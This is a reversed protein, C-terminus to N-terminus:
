DKKQLKENKYDINKSIRTSEADSIRSDSLEKNSSKSKQFISDIRNQKQNNRGSTLLPMARKVPDLNIKNVLNLTEQSSGNEINENLENIIRNEKFGQSEM